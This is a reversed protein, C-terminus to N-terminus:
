SSTPGIRAMEMIHDAISQPQDINGITLRSTEGATEFSLDGIGVIRQKFTQRVTVDQVKTLQITRSTTTLLGVEYRLKDGEITIKSLKQKFHRAAPWLVLLLALFGWATETTYYVAIGIALGALIAFAYGLKILKVSPRIILDAMNM